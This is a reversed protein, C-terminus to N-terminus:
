LTYVAIQPFVVSGIYLKGDHEEVESVSKVVKGTQDELVEQLVGESDYRLVMGHPIPASITHLFKLSIPAKGSILRLWPLAGSYMELFTRRGHIAVWFDGKENCRVNDPIGPLDKFKEWTGTKPGKLWYRLLRFDQLSLTLMKSCHQSVFEM